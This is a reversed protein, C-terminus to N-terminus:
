QFYKCCFTEPDAIKVTIGDCEIADNLACSISDDIAATWDRQYSELEELFQQMFAAARKKSLSSELNKKLIPFAKDSFAEKVAESITGDELTCQLEMSDPM